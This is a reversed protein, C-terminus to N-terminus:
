EAKRNLIFVELVLKGMDFTVKRARTGKPSNDFEFILPVFREVCATEVRRKQMGQQDDRFSLGRARKLLSDQIGPTSPTPPPQSEDLTDDAPAMITIFRSLMFTIFTFSISAPPSTSLIDLVHSRLQENQPLRKAKELEILSVLLMDWLKLPVVHGPMYSLFLVLTESLLEIEEISNANPLDIPSGTDLAERISLLQDDQAIEEPSRCVFPWGINQKRMVELRAPDLAINSLAEELSETLRFLERPASSKVDEKNLEYDLRQKRVGDKSIRILRDISLGFCSPLWTAQVPIFHDRGKYVRMILVTELKMSRENFQHLQEAQHVFAIVDINASDGPQLTIPDPFNNRSSNRPGNRAELRMWTPVASVGDRQVFEFTAPVPSTNAVTLLVTKEKLFRLDGFQCGESPKEQLDHSEFIATVSPRGENEQRDIEKAVDQYIKAKLEADVANYQINFIAALPKHDSSLIRQHSVYYELILSGASNAALEQYAPTDNLENNHNAPRDGVGDDGDTEPDYDFIIDEPNEKELGRAKMEEDRKQVKELEKEQQQWIQYHKKTRYLIRDCWSPSRKKESSDFMGVSGIDYKYTPLFQVLGEQWGEYFAKRLRMQAHLEDHIMLSAVTTLPSTPDMSPEIAESEAIVDKVKAEEKIKLEKDITHRTEDDQNYENRTHLLLLRRVDDGPIDSLRYNLDGFWFAFDEEGIYDGLEDMVGNGHDIPSFRSRQMIQSVDWNRRELSSKDNGAALHSNVFVMKTTHALVLRAAVAGKNAMYGMLGTGVSTTSVSSVTPAIDPSAYVLLLLGLLQQEAVLTYGEPLATAIADKWRTAPASDNYPRLAEAASNIDVIEQLGLAYIDIEDNSPLHYTDNAPVTSEHKSVRAEQTPVDEIQEDITKNGIPLGGHLSSVGKGDVFWGKIDKETGLCSAVNWSGTKVRIQKTRTYEDRREFVERNLHRQTNFGASVPSSLSANAHPGKLPTGPDIPNIDSPM